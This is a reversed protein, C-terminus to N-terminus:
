ARSVRPLDGLARGVFRVTPQVPDHMFARISNNDPGNLGRQQELLPPQQGLEPPDNAGRVLAVTKCCLGGSRHEPPKAAMADHREYSVNMGTVSRRDSNRHTQPQRRGAYDHISLGPPNPGAVARRVRGSPGRATIALFSPAMM